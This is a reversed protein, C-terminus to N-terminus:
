NFNKLLLNRAKEYLHGEMGLSILWNELAEKQNTSGANEANNIPKESKVTDCLTWIFQVYQAAHSTDELTFWPFRIMEKTTKISLNKTGLAIKLLSEKAKVIKKLNSLKEPTFSDNPYEVTFKYISM